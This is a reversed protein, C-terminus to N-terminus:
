QCAGKDSSAAVKNVVSVNTQGSTTDIKFVTWNAMDTTSGTADEIKFEQSSGDSLYLSVKGGGYAAPTTSFRNVVYCYVGPHMSNVTITEPGYGNRADVDLTADAGSPSKASYYVKILSSPNGVTPVWLYSDLDAPKDNWTLVIRAAKGDLNPSLVFDKQQDTVTQIDLTSDLTIFGTASAKVYYVGQPISIEYKGDTGSTVSYEPNANNETLSLEIKTNPIMANNIANKTVGHLKVLQQKFNVNKDAKVATGNAISASVQVSLAETTTSTLVMKASGNIDTVSTAAQLTVANGKDQSWNVTANSALNGHADKVIATYTFFDTGNAIKDTMSDDLTVTTVAATTLDAVFTANVTQNHDNIAATVKTIGATINTLTTTALGDGDTIATATTVTAGNDATFSVNVNPVQNGHADTVKAQVKDTAVGNAIANDVTVILDGSVITATSDDAVFTTDVTQSNGNVTATVKTIGAKINTLTTSALGQDDTTVSATIVTAGNDATFSVTANPVHNGTADTVEAQVKNTDTGNAKANNVTVTLNGSVITSTSDDAVFTTDVTQSHGNVTATVKTIGAKVNTLTTSALGQDDTTVSATIVTAGNDATFSVATNPVRNGTADTVKAQVKNTDTGNAKANNVTVTLDGSVITSTSDDAVFTTDVTQSNGNVTATVKTIGAKVNTLTTSALGQDDTTASATIVTAGNNAAFTVTANPVHNGTADTVEAQVKNTDTG